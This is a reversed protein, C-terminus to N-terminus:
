VALEGGSSKQQDKPEEQPAAPGQKVAGAAGIGHINEKEGNHKKHNESEAQARGQASEPFAFEQPEAGAGGSFDDRLLSDSVPGAFAEDNVFKGDATVLRHDAAVGIPGSVVLGVFREDNEVIRLVNGAVDGEAAGAPADVRAVASEELGSEASGKPRIEM